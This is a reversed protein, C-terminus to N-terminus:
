PRGSGMISRASPWRQTRTIPVSPARSSAAGTYAAPSARLPLESTTEAMASASAQAASAALSRPRYLGKGTKMRPPQRDPKRGIPSRRKGTWRNQQQSHLFLARDEMDERPNGMAVARRDHSAIRHEAGALEHYRMRNASIPIEQRYTRSFTRIGRDTKRGDGRKRM